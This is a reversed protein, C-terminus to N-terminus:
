VEIESVLVSGFVLGQQLWLEANRCRFRSDFEHGEVYRLLYIKGWEVLYVRGM